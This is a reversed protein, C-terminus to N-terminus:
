IRWRPLQSALYLGLVTGFAVTHLTLQVAPNVETAFWPVNIAQAFLYFNIPMLLFGFVTGFTVTAQPSRRLDPFRTVISAAIVGFLLSFLLHMVLGIPIALVPDILAPPTQLPISAFMHLPMLLGGHMQWDAIMAAIAFMIGAVVGGILGHRIAWDTDVTYEIKKHAVDAM